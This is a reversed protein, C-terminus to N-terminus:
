SRAMFYETLQQARYCGAIFLPECGHGIFLERLRRQRQQAAVGLQAKLGPRLLLLRRHGTELDRVAILGFSASPVYENSSWTVLPVVMHRALRHMVQDLLADPWHFDSCLFVLATRAPLQTAAMVMGGAHSGRSDTARMAPGILWPLGARRTPPLLLESRLQTDAGIFGFPDGTRYASLAISASLDALISQKGAFGMSATLDALMYVNLTSLQNYIRVQLEGMPDRLSARLDIRRPDPQRLLSGYERFQYGTGIQRSRHSGPRLGSAPRPSRYHFEEPRVSDAGANLYSGRALM